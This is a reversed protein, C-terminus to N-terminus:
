IRIVMERGGVGGQVERGVRGDQDVAKRDRTLFCTDLSYYYILYIIFLDSYSWFLSFIGALTFACFIFIFAPVCMNACEPNRYFGM